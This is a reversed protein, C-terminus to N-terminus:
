LATFIDFQVEIGYLIARILTTLSNFGVYTQQISTNLGRAM